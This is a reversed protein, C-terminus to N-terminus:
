MFVTKLFILINIAANNVTDVFQHGSFHGVSLLSPVSREIDTEENILFPFLSNFILYIILLLDGTTTDLM